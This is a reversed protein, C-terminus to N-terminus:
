YEPNFIVVGDANEPFETEEFDCVQFDILEEVGALMANERAFLIAQTSIDSAIIKLHPKKCIKDEMKRRQRDLYEEEYGLIHQFAYSDRILGPYRDTAMMAAEIALTGSGCMPNVFPSYLDWETAMIVSSALAELM